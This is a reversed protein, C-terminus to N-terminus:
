AEKTIYWAALKTMEELAKPSLTMFPRAPIKISEKLLFLPEVSGDDKKQYIFATGAKKSKRFFTDAYQRPRGTVGPMPIALYKSKKPRLKGGPLMKTGFHMMAAYAVNTGFSMYYPLKRVSNGISMRLHNSNQLIGGAPRNALTFKSLPKWKKFVGPKGTGSLMDGYSGENRFNRLVDEKMKAEYITFLPRMDRGKRKMHSLYSQLDKDDLSIKIPNTSM